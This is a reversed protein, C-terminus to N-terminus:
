RVTCLRIHHIHKHVDSEVLHHISFPSCVKGRPDPQSLLHLHHPLLRRERQRLARRNPRLPHRHPRRRGEPRLSAQSQRRPGSVPRCHPLPRHHHHRHARRQRPGQASVVDPESDAMTCQIRCCTLGLHRHLLGAVFGADVLSSRLSVGGSAQHKARPARPDYFCCLATMVSLAQLVIVSFTLFRHPGRPQPGQPAPQFSGAAAALAPTEAASVGESIGALRRQLLAPDRLLAQAQAMHVPCWTLNLSSCMSVCAHQLLALNSLLGQAQAVHVPAGPRHSNVSSCMSACSHQLVALDSSLAQAQAVHAPCWTLYLNVSTGSLRRIMTWVPTEADECSIDVCSANIRAKCHRSSYLVEM